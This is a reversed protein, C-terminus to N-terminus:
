RLQLGDVTTENIMECQWEYQVPYVSYFYKPGFYDKSQSANIKYNLGNTQSLKM